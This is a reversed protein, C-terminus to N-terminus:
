AAALDLSASVRKWPVTILGDSGRRILDIAMLATVDAHVAKYDRRLGAALARISLPGRAKLARLTAWRNPTLTRLLTELDGFSLHNEASVKGGSDLKRALRSAREFFAADDEIHIKIGSM